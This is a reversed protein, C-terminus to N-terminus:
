LKFVTPLSAPLAPCPLALFPLALCALILCPLFPFAPLALCAPNASLFVEKSNSVGELSVHRVDNQQFFCRCLTLCHRGLWRPLCLVGRLTRPYVDLPYSADALCARGDDGSGCWFTLMKCRGSLASFLAAPLPLLLCSLHARHRLFHRLCERCTKVRCFARWCVCDTPLPVIRALTLPSSSPTRPSSSCSMLDNIYGNCDASFCM